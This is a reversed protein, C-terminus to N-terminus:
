GKLCDYLEKLAKEEKEIGWDGSDNWEVARAAEAVLLLIKKFKARHINNDEIENALEEIRLFAYNYAGGSM